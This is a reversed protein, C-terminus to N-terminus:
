LRAKERLVLLGGLVENEAQALQEVSRGAAEELVADAVKEKLAPTVEPTGLAKMLGELPGMLQEM